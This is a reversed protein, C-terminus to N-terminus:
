WKREIVTEINALEAKTNQIGNAINLQQGRTQAGAILFIMM